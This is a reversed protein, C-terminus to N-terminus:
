SSDTSRELTAKNDCCCDDDDDPELDPNCNDGDDCDEVSDCGREREGVVTVSFLVVCCSKSRDDLVDVGVVDQSPSSLKSPSVVVFSFDLEDFCCCCTGVDGMELVFLGLTCVALM